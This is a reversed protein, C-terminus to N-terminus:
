LHYHGKDNFQTPINFLFAFVIWWIGCYIGFPLYGGLGLMPMEFVHLIQVYPISYVWYDPNVTVVTGDALHVASFYNWCECLIGQVFYTLALFAVPTYNGERILRFPSWISLLGLVAALIVLPASWLVGFSQNPFFPVFFLAVYALVLMIWLGVKGVRIKPGDAYRNRFGEWTNFLSYWEFSMVMLGSSGVLAYLLFQDDSLRDGEPYLWNDNVFFNLWEFIMWGGSSALGMALLERPHRAIISLGGTRRYVIADLFIAFGWFLPVVAWNILWLPGSFKGWLVTLPILWLALGVWTWFPWSFDTGLKRAPLSGRRVGFLRPAVYFLVIVLGIAAVTLFIPLSFGPKPPVTLPPFAFYDSRFEGGFRRLGGLYPMLLILGCAALLLTIQKILRTNM